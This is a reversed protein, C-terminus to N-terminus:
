LSILSVDHSNNCLMNRMKSVVGIWATKHESLQERTIFGCEYQYQAKLYRLHLEEGQIKLSKYHDVDATFQMVTSLDVKPKIREM